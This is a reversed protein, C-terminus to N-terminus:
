SVLPTLILPPTGAWHQKSFSTGLLRMLAVLGPPSGHWEGLVCGHPITVPFLFWTRKIYPTSRLITEKVWTSERPQVTILTAKKSRTPPGSDQKRAGQSEAGGAAKTMVWTVQRVVLRGNRPLSPLVTNTKGRRKESRRPAGQRGRQGAFPGRGVRRCIGDYFKLITDETNLITVCTENKVSRRVGFGGLIPARM